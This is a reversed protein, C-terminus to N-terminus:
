KNFAREIIRNSCYKKTVGYFYQPFSINEANMANFFKNPNYSIVSEQYKIRNKVEDDKIIHDLRMLSINHDIVDKKEQEISNSKYAECLNIITDHDESLGSINDAPDGLIAKYLLFQNNKLDFGKNLEDLTWIPDKTRPRIVSCNKNVSILWDRDISYLITPINDILSQNAYYYGIDDAEVGYFKISGIGTLPLIKHAIKLAEWLFDFSDDYERTAKYEVGKEAPRYRNHGYDWAVYVQSQYDDEKIIKFITQLVSILVKGTDRPKGMAHFNRVSLFNGDLVIRKKM